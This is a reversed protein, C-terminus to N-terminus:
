DAVKYLLTNRGVFSATVNLDIFQSIESFVVREADKSLFFGDTLDHLTRWWNESMADFPFGQPKDLITNQRYRWIPQLHPVTVIHHAYLSDWIAQPVGPKAKWLTVKKYGDVDGLGEDQFGYGIRDCTEIVTMGYGSPGFQPPAAAWLSVFATFDFQPDNSRRNKNHENQGHLDLLDLEIRKVEPM